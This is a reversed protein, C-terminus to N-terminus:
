AKEFSISPSGQLLFLQSRISAAEKQKNTLIKKYESEKGKTAKLISNKQSEEQELRKKELEQLTKLQIEEQKDNEM